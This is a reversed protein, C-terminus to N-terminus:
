CICCFHLHTLLGQLFPPPACNRLPTTNQFKCVVPTRDTHAQLESGQDRTPVHNVPFVAIRHPLSAKFGAPALLSLDYQDDSYCKASDPNNQGIRHLLTTPEKECRCRLVRSPVWLSPLMTSSMSSWKPTIEIKRSTHEPGRVEIVLVMM